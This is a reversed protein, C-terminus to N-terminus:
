EWGIIKHTQLSLNYGFQMVSALTAALNDANREQMKEDCPQVYVPAHGTPRAILQRSTGISGVEQGPQTTAYPLGDGPYVDGSRIIYKWATVHGSYNVRQTKPSIVVECWHPLSQDVVGSTEIQVRYATGTLLFLFSSIDQKLPEGGTIVILRINRSRAVEGVEDLLSKVPYSTAAEIRFDTDCFTCKLPCGALRIFVAPQGANPGEGQISPFIERVILNSM